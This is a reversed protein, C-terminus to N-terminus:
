KLRWEIVDKIPNNNADIFEPDQQYSAIYKPRIAEILEGSATKVIVKVEPAPLRYPGVPFWVTM